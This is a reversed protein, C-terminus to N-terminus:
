ASEVGHNHPLFAAASDIRAVAGGGDRNELTIVAPLALWKAIPKM